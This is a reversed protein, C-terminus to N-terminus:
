RVARSRGSLMEVPAQALVGWAPDVPGQLDAQPSLLLRPNGTPHLRRNGEIRGPAWPKGASRRGAGSGLGLDFAGDQLVLGYRRAPGVAFGRERRDFFRPERSSDGIRLPLGTQAVWGLLGQGKCFPLPPRECGIGSRAGVELRGDPGCLRISAHDADFLRLAADTVQRLGAHQSAEDLLRHTMEALIGLAQEHMCLTIRIVRFCIWTFIAHSCFINCMRGSDSMSPRM